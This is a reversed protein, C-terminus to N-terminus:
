ADHCSSLFKKVIPMVIEKESIAQFHNLGEVLHLEIGSQRINESQKKLISYTPEDNKGAYVLLPSKVMDPEIKPWGAMAQSIALAADLDANDVFYREASSLKLKDLKGSTKAQVAAELSPINQQGYDILEQGFFSGTAIVGYLNGKVAAHLGISAGLSFGWVFFKELGITKTVLEIDNLLYQIAYAKEEKPKSSDGHGRIDIAVVTYEKQLNDIYSLNTWISRNQVFGGHLLILGLGKGSYNYAIKQGDESEVFYTM